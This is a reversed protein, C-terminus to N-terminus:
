VSNEDDAGRRKIAMCVFGNKLGWGSLIYIVDFVEHEIRHKVPLGSSDVPIFQLVDGTQYGRDNKRIEFSKEGSMLADCFDEMIKITHVKAM